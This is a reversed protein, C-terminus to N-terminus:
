LLTEKFSGDILEFPWKYIDPNEKWSSNVYLDGGSRILIVGSESDDFAIDGDICSMLRNIFRFLTNLGVDLTKAFVSVDICHNIDIKAEENIHDVSIKDDYDIRLAFNAHNVYYINNTNQLIIEESIEMFIQRVLKALEEINNSYSIYISLQM